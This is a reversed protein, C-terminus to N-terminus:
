ALARGGELFHYLHVLAGRLHAKKPGRPGAEIGRKIRRYFEAPESIRMGEVLEFPELRLRAEFWFWVALPGIVDMKWLDMILPEYHMAMSAIEATTFDFGVTSDQKTSEMASGSATEQPAQSDPVPRTPGIGAEVWSRVARDDGDRLLDNVDGYPPFWIRACDLRDLWYQAAKRGAGNEDQDFAILVLPAVAIVALWRARLEL